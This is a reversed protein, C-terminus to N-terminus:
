IQKYGLSILTKIFGIMNSKRRFTRIGWFESGDTHTTAGDCISVSYKVSGIQPNVTFKKM